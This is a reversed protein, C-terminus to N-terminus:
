FTMRDTSTQLFLVKAHDIETQMVTRVPVGPLVVDPAVVVSLVPFFEPMGDWQTGALEPCSGNIIEWDGRAGKVLTSCKPCCTQM